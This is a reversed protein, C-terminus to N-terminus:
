EAAVRDSAPSILLKEIEEADAGWILHEATLPISRKNAYSLLRRNAEPPMDGPQRWVSGNVWNYAAKEKYGILAGLEKRPAILKECVELPTLHKSM